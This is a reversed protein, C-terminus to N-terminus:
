RKYIDATVTGNHHFICNAVFPLMAGNGAKAEFEIKIVNENKPNVFDARGAIYHFEAASPNDLQNKVAEECRMYDARSAGTIGVPSQKPACGALTLSAALAAAMILITNKKM